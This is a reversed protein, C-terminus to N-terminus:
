GHQELCRWRVDSIGRKLVRLHNASCSNRFFDEKNASEQLFRGECGHFRIMHREKEMELNRQEKHHVTPSAARHRPAVTRKGTAHGESLNTLQTHTSCCFCCHNNHPKLAHIVHVTCHQPCLLRVALM